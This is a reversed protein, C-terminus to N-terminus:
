TRNNTAKFLSQIQNIQNFEWMCVYWTIIKLPDSTVFDLRDDRPLFVGDPLPFRVVYEGYLSFVASTCFYESFFAVDGFFCFFPFLFLFVHHTHINHSDPRM